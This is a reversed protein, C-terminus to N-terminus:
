ESSVPKPFEGTHSSDVLAFGVRCRCDGHLLNLIKDYRCEIVYPRQQTQILPLCQYEKHFKLSPAGFAAGAFAMASALVAGHFALKSMVWSRLIEAVLGVRGPPVKFLFQRFRYILEKCLTLPRAPPGRGLKSIATNRPAVRTRRFTPRDVAVDGLSLNWSYATVCMIPMDRKITNAQKVENSLWQAFPLTQNAPEGEELSNTLYVSLRPPASTPKYGLATLIM